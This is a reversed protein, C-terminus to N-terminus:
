VMMLNLIIEEREKKISHKLLVTFDKQKWNMQKMIKLFEIEKGKILKNKNNQNSKIQNKM